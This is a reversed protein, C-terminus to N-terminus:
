HPLIPFFIQKQQKQRKQQQASVALSIQPLFGLDIGDDLLSGFDSQADLGLLDIDELCQCLCAIEGDITDTVTDFEDAFFGITLLIDIRQIKVIDVDDTGRVIVQLLVVNNIYLGILDLRTVRTYTM